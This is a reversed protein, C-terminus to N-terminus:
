DKGPISVYHVEAVQEELWRRAEPPAQDETVVAHIRSWPAFRVFSIRTFKVSDVVLLTREACRDPFLDTVAVIGVNPHDQFGFVAGFQCVGYGAIGVRIKRDLVPQRGKSADPDVPTKEFGPISPLKEQETGARGMTAAGMGM